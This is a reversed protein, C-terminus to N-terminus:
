YTAGRGDGRWRDVTARNRLARVVDVQASSAYLAAAVSGGTLGSAGLVLVRAASQNRM